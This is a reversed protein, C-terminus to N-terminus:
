AATMSLRKRERCVSQCARPIARKTRLCGSRRRARHAGLAVLVGPLGAVPRLLRVGICRGIERMPRIEDRREPRTELWAVLHEVECAPVGTEALQEDRPAEAVATDVRRGLHDRLGPPSEAVASRDLDAVEVLVDRRTRNGRRSDEARDIVRAVPSGEETMDRAERLLLQDEIQVGALVPGVVHRGVQPGGAETLHEKAREEHRLRNRERASTDAAAFASSREPGSARSASRNRKM